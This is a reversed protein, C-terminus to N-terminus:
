EIDKYRTTFSELDDIDFVEEAKAADSVLDEIENPNPRKQVEEDECRIDPGGDTNSHFWGYGSWYQLPYNLKCNKCEKKERKLLFSLTEIVNKPGALGCELCYYGGNDWKDVTQNTIGKAREFKLETDVEHRSWCFPCKM